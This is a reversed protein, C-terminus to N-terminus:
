FSLDGHLVYLDRIIDWSNENVGYNIRIISVLLSDKTLSLDMVIERLSILKEGKLTGLGLCKEM